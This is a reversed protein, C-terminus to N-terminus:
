ACGSPDSESGFPEGDHVPALMLAATARAQAAVFHSAALAAAKVLARCQEASQLHLQVAGNLRIIASGLDGTRDSVPFEADLGPLSVALFAAMVEPPPGAVHISGDGSRPQGKILTAALEPDDRYGSPLPATM